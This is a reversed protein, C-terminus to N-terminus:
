AGKKIWRCAAMCATRRSMLPATKRELALLLPTYYAKAAHPLRWILSNVIFLWGLAGFYNTNAVDFTGAFERALREVDISAENEAFYKRDNKYWLARFWDPLSGSHPEVFCFQGGPKLVRAVERIAGEVNPHVHHLGSLIVVCDFSGAPLGSAFVSACAVKADPWRKRYSAIAEKSIDLGMVEAGQDRLFPTAQGSGCMAELVKAGKLNVGEFLPGFMFEDRYQHSWVDGYHQEYDRFIASYHAHQLDDSNV